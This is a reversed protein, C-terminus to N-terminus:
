RELDNISIAGYHGGGYQPPGLSLCAHEKGLSAGRLWSMMESDSLGLSRGLKAINVLITNRKKM